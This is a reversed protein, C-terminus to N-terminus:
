FEVKGTEVDYMAKVVDIKGEEHLGKLLASHAFINDVTLAVNNKAVRDVFDSNNSSRDEGPASETIEIAPKIKDLLQTLNGAKVEDCAGKVAGCSTHGMVVVLPVGAFKCAYEISGLIDPNVFNGAVKVNFVDGIGQDFILNTPVRSDICSLIVAFPYQGSATKEIQRDFNRDLFDKELFRENGRRLMELAMEPTIAEQKEPTIVKSNDILTLDKM